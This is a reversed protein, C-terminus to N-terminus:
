GGDFGRRVLAALAEVAEAADDGEGQIVLESGQEAALMLVGMISKGNVRLGDKELHIESTFRGALKVLEAAPRAHLGLRNVIEVRREEILREESEARPTPEVTSGGMESPHSYGM